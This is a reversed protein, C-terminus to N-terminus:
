PKKQEKDEEVATPKEMGRLHKFEKRSLVSAFWEELEEEAAQDEASGNGGMTKRVKSRMDELSSIDFAWILGGTTMIGASLVNITAINLAEFAEMAGNVEMNPRNSPQYFRPISAKYKRVLSRRTVATSIALFGAGAAFLGLQRMSRQSFFNSRPESQTSPQPDRIPESQAM